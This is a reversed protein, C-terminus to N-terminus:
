DQLYADEDGVGAVKSDRMRNEYFVFSINMEDVSLIDPGSGKLPGGSDWSAQQKTKPLAKPGEKQLGLLIILEM